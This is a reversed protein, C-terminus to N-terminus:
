PRKMFACFSDPDEIPREGIMERLANMSSLIQERVSGHKRGSELMRCLTGLALDALLLRERRTWGPHKSRSLVQEAVRQYSMVIFSMVPPNDFTSAYLFMRLFRSSFNRLISSLERYGMPREWFRSNKIKANLRNMVLALTKLDGKAVVGHVFSEIVSFHDRSVRDMRYEELMDEIPLERVLTAALSTPRLLDRTAMLYHWLSEFAVASLTITLFVFFDSVLSESVFKLVLIGLFIVLGYLIVFLKLRKERFLVDLLDVSYSTSIIEAMILTLSVVIAFISADVQVLASLLFMENGIKILRWGPRLHAVLAEILVLILAAAAAQLVRRRLFGEFDRL